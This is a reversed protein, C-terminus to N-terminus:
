ENWPILNAPFDPDVKEYIVVRSDLEETVRCAYIWKTGNYHAILEQLTSRNRGTTFINFRRHNGSMKYPISFLGSGRGVPINGIEFIYGLATEPLNEPENAALYNFRDVDVVRALLDYLPYDGENLAMIQIKDDARSEFQMLCFSDGGTAHGINKEMATNLLQSLGLNQETLEHLKELQHITNGLIADSKRSSSKNHMFAGVAAILSGFISIGNIRLPTEYFFLNLSPFIGGIISILAGALIIYLPKPLKM